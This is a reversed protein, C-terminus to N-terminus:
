SVLQSDALLQQLDLGEVTTGAARLWESTIVVHAESVAHAQWAFDARQRAGWTVYELVGHRSGCPYRRQLVVCHGGVEADGPQWTWVQGQGFEAEMHQQVTFGVYLSGFVDLCQAVLEEDAPNGLRAHGLVKHVTGNLDTMGNAAADDLVDACFAGNDTAQNGPVYGSVRSYTKEIEADSFMAEAGSGYTSVAGLLHGLGAVTCDGLRDNGYMPFSPVQSSRDVDATWSVPPLGTRALRARPDLYRELIRAPRQPDPPLCGYKGPQRPM